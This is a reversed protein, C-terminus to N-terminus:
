QSNITCYNSCLDKNSSFTLLFITRQCQVNVSKEQKIFVSESKANSGSKFGAM